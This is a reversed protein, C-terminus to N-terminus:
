HKTEKLVVQINTAMIRNVCETEMQTLFQFRHIVAKSRTATGVQNVKSVVKLHILDLVAKDALDERDVQVELVEPEM